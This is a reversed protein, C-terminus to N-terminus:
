ASKQASLRETRTYRGLFHEAAAALLQRKPAPMADLTSVVLRLRENQLLLTRKLEVFRWFLGDVVDCWNDPGHVGRPRKYDSMRLLYNSACVYPNTSFLGGDAFLAMGYVNPVMVWDSSDVFMEMFWRYAEDPEIECLTMLNGVVMLREIHHAWGLRLTKHIVDDLPVIGTRGEYWASTMHRGHHFHNQQAQWPGHQQYVARVFERWGIVQRIFGELSNLPVSRQNAALLCEEVVETPTLLGVNLLPSLVGHFLTPSRSSLADEYDGFKALREAIFRRLWTLASQRTVPLWWRGESLQGPHQSFRTNVLRIVDRVHETPAENPVQPVFESQPLPKRNDADFSWKGGQPKGADNVLIHLNQRQWRYFHALRPKRQQSMYLQALDRPTLFMPSPLFQLDLKNRNAFAVLRAEFFKDEVEFMMLRRLRHRKVFRDLKDEYSDNQTEGGDLHHYDVRFGASRLGEAYHRMAALFFVIKQKHHRVYTCLGMDEAMFVPAGRLSALHSRPFLQNGLVVVGANAPQGVCGQIGVEGRTFCALRLYAAIAPFNRIADLRAFFNRLAFM